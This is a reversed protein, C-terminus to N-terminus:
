SESNQCDYRKLINYVSSRSIDYKKAIQLKPVGNNFEAIVQQEIDTEVKPRGKARTSKRRTRSRAEPKQSRLEEIEKKLEENEAKLQNREQLIDRLINRGETKLENIEKQLDEVYLYSPKKKLTTQTDRSVFWLEDGHIEWTDICVIKGSHRSHRVLIRKIQAEETIEPRDFALTMNIYYGKIRKHKFTNGDIGDQKFENNFFGYEKLITQQMKATIKTIDQQM